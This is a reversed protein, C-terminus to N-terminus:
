KFGYKQEYFQGISVEICYCVNLLKEIKNELNDKTVRIIGKNGYAVSGDEFVIFEM